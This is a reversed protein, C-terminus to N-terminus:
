DKMGVGIKSRRGLKRRLAITQKLLPVHAIDKPRMIARKSKLISELPLVPLRMGHWRVFRVRKWEAAFGGLGTVRYVFNVLTDDPLAVATNALIGAGLRRCLTLVRVYQRLPLDLWLDTDLTTAPVGQLVAAAM